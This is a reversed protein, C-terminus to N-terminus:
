RNPRRPGPCSATHRWSPARMRFGRCAPDLPIAGLARRAPDRLSKPTAHNVPTSVITCFWLKHRPGCLGRNRATAEVKMLYWRPTPIMGAPVDPCDRLAQPLMLQHRPPSDAASRRHQENAQRPGPARPESRRVSGGHIRRAGLTTGLDGVAANLVAHEGTGSHQLVADVASHTEIPYAIEIAGADARDLMVFSADGTGIPAHRKEVIGKVWVSPPRARPM